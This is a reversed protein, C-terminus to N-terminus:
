LVRRDRILIDRCDALTPARARPAMRICRAPIASSPSAMGSGFVMANYIAAYDRSRTAKHRHVTCKFRYWRGERAVQVDVARSATYCGLSGPFDVKSSVHVIEGQVGDCSPRMSNTGFVM